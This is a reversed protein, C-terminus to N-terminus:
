IVNCELSGLTNHCESQNNIIINIPLYQLLGSVIQEIKLAM